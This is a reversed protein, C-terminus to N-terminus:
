KELPQPHKLSEPVVPCKGTAKITRKVRPRVVVKPATVTIPPEILLVRVEPAVAPAVVVPAPQPVYVIQPAPQTFTAQCDSLTLKATRAGDTSCLVKAAASFNRMAAFAAALALRQCNKDAKSGGLSIGGIPASVGGSISGQCNSPIITPAYALPAQRVQNINETSNSEYNSNNGSNSASSNANQSTSQQQNNLQNQSQKQSQSANGGTATAKGGTATASAGANAASNSSANSTSNSSVNTPKPDPTVPPVPITQCQFLLDGTSYLVGGTTTKPVSVWQGNCTPWAFAASSCVMLLFTLALNKLKM